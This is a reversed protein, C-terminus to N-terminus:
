QAQGKAAARRARMRERIQKQTPATWGHWGVGRCWRQFHATGDPLRKPLGCHRCGDVPVPAAALGDLHTRYSDTIEAFFRGPLPEGCSCVMTPAEGQGRTWDPVHARGHWVDTHDPCLRWQRYTMWGAPAGHEGTLVAVADMLAPCGPWTCGRHVSGGYADAVERLDIQYTPIRLRRNPPIVAEGQATRRVLVNRPGGRKPRRTWTLWPWSPAPDHKTVPRAQTIVTVPEPPRKAGSLRDGPDLYVGGCWGTRSKVNYLRSGSPTTGNGAPGSGAAISEAAARAAARHRDDATM